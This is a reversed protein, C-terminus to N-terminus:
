VNQIRKVMNAGTSHRMAITNNAKVEFQFMLKTSYMKKIGYSRVFSVIAVEM